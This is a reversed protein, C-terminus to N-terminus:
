GHNQMQEWGPRSTDGPQMYDRPYNPIGTTVTHLETSGQMNMWGLQSSDEPMFYDPPYSPVPTPDNVTLESGGSMTIRGSQTTDLPRMYDSPYGPLSWQYTQAAAIHTGCIVLGM